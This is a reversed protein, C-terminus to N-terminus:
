AAGPEAARVGDGRRRRCPVMGRTSLITPGPLAHTAVALASTDASQAMSKKAPGLSIRITEEFPVGAHIAASRRAWASCSSSALAIRMVGLAFSALATASSIARCIGSSPGARAATSCFPAMM